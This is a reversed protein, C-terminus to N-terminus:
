TDKTNGGNGRKLKYLKNELNLNFAILEIEENVSKIHGKDILDKIKQSWTNDFVTTENLFAKVADTGGKEWCEIIKKVSAKPKKKNM